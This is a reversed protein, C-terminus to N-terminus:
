LNITSHDLAIKGKICMVMPTELLTGAISFNYGEGWDVIVVMATNVPSGCKESFVEAVKVDLFISDVIDDM